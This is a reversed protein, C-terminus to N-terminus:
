KKAHARIAAALREKQQAEKDHGLQRLLAAHAELTEAFQMSSIGLVKERIKEAYVFYREADATKGLRQYVIALSNAADGFEATGIGGDDARLDACRKLPGEASGYLKSLRFADGQMCIADATSDNDPGLMRDFVPLLKQLSLLAPQYKGQDMLVGALIFQVQAYDLSDEGPNLSYILTARRAAEEADALKKEARFLTAQGALTSAVRPDDKGFIEADHLTKAYLSEAKPYDKEAFARQSQGFLARWDEDVGALLSAACLITLAIARFGTM